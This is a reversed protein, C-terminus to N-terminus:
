FSSLQGPTPSFLAIPSPLYWRQALNVWPSGEPSLFPQTLDLFTLSIPVEGKLTM